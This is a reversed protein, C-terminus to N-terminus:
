RSDLVDEVEINRCHAVQIGPEGQTGSLLMVSRVLVGQSSSIKVLPGDQAHGFVRVGDLLVGTVNRIDVPLECQEATVNRITLGAHGLDHNSTRVARKCRVAHVNDVLHNHMVEAPGGHDHMVDVAYVCDEAYINRLTINDAGDCAEVAGRLRSRYARVNDVLVHSISGNPRGELSVGDRGIDRVEVDRIVGGRIPKNLVASRVLIGHQSAQTLLGREITFDGAYVVLLSYRGDQVWNPWDSNGHLEFDAIRVGEVNVVVLPFPDRGAPLRAHLGLLTLPKDIVLPEDLEVAKNRDFLVVSHSPAQDIAERAERNGVAIFQAPADQATVTCAWVAMLNAVIAVRLNTHCM